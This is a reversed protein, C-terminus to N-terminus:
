GSRRESRGQKSEGSGNPAKARLWRREARHVLDGAAGIPCLGECFPRQVVFSLALLAATIGIAWASVTYANSFFWTFFGVGEKGSRHDGRILPYLAAVVLLAVARLLWAAVGLRKTGRLRMRAASAQALGLPCVRECFRQEGFNALLAGTVVYPRLLGFTCPRLCVHCFIYPVRFYCRALPLAALPLLLLFSV